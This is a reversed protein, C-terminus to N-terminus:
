KKSSPEPVAIAGAGVRRHCSRCLTVVNDLSHADQPVNFDRVRDIHHVDPARGIQSKGKGCVQCQHGDRELTARRVRWWKEGYDLDGSQWQHHDEGVVHESLWGGYCATDCFLGHEKRELKSPLASIISGCQSCETDVREIKEAHNEPLLGGADTVCDSCYRGDKDSPYYSFESSCIECETEEKAGTWNGNREGANPNCDDCYTRRAKPDYFEVDCGDCTRNPLPEGHVKTHHQRM